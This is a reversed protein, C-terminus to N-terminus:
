KKIYHIILHMKMFRLLRIDTLREYLESIKFLFKNFMFFPAGTYSAYKKIFGRKSLIKHIIGLGNFRYYTPFTDEEIYSPFIKMKLWDRLKMPLISSLFMMPHYKSNTVVVLSGNKKLVRHFERIVEDIDEIHEIMWQSVVADFSEDKFPLKSADASVFTSFAKNQKIADISIDMGVSFKLKQSHRQMMSKKGCGADLLINDPSSLSSLIEDYIDLTTKVSHFYSGEPFVPLEGEIIKNKEGM